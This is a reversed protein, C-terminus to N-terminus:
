NQPAPIKSAIEFRKDFSLNEEQQAMIERIAWEALPRFVEMDRRLAAYNARIKRLDKECQILRDLNSKPIETEM